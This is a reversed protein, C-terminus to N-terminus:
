IHMVKGLHIWKHHLSCLWKVKLPKSYDPHHAQAKEGCIQCSLKKIRGQHLNYNFKQEAKIKEPNNANWKEENHYGNKKRWERNYERNYERIKERNAERYQRHYITQLNM